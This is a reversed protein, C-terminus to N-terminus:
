GWEFGTAAVVGPGDLAPTSGAHTMRHLSRSVTLGVASLVRTFRDRALADIIVEGDVRDAVAALLTALAERDESVVPGVQPCERGPRVFAVAEPPGDAPVRIGTVGPSDFLHALLPRRDVGCCAADFAAVSDLDSIPEADIEEDGDFGDMSDPVEIRGRWRDIGGTREFGYGDYVRRGANTADLGVVDLGAELGATLSREFVASGYGRRRHDPDVLVMGVWGIRDEYTALTSTAVLEGDVRGAFCTEPHLDLLRGWDSRTQNWGVATSLGHADGLDARTLDDIGLEM